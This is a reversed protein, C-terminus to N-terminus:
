AFIDVSGPTRIRMVGTREGIADPMEMDHGEPSWGAGPRGEGNAAQERPFSEASVQANGLMIGNEALMERLRPLASEIADRVAAHHSVFLASAQDNTITIKVELPGLNPPNLQMEAVQHRQNVLWAVKQGLAADWGPAGVRPEVSLGVIGNNNNGQVSKIQSFAEVHTAHVEGDARTLNQVASLENLQFANGKVKVEAFPLDKGTGAIEAADKGPKLRIGSALDNGTQSSDDPLLSLIDRGANVGVGDPKAVDAASKAPAVTQEVRQTPTAAQVLTAFLAALDSITASTEEQLSADDDGVLQASSDDKGIETNALAQQGILLALEDSPPTSQAQTQQALLSEFTVDDTAEAASLGSASVNDMAQAKAPVVGPLASVPSSQM